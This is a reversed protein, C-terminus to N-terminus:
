SRTPRARRGLSYLTEARVAYAGGEKPNKRIAEATEILAKEQATRAMDARFLSAMRGSALGLRHGSGAQAAGCGRGMVAVQHDFRDGSFDCCAAPTSRTENSCRHPGKM